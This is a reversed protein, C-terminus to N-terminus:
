AKSHVKSKKLKGHVQQSKPNEMSKKVKQSKTKKPKQFGKQSKPNEM